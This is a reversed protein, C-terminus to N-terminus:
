TKLIFVGPIQCKLLLECIFYLETSICLYLFFRLDWWEQVFSCDGHCGKGRMHMQVTQVARVLQATCRGTLNIKM